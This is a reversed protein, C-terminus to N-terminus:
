QEEMEADELKMNRSAARLWKGDEEVLIEIDASEGAVLENPLYLCYGDDTIEDSITFAEYTAAAGGAKVTVYVRGANKITENDIVGHIKRYNIDAEATDLSVTTKTEINEAKPVETIVPGTMIPPEKAFDGVNREVKEIVVTDPKQEKMYREIQFPLEKTFSANKFEGAMFPLLTNGFSDRFMLLSKKKKPNETQIFADEVSKTPTIYQFEQKKQYEYNWEPEGGLPYIMKNLDGLETKTRVAKTTEYTDHEYGLSDMIRNYALAAGKNNWHSDRKLYLVEKEREFIEFLDCYAIKAKELEPMLADINSTDDIKKYYYPMGEEYLSNKNPAVTLLFRGGQSTVYQQILSLNNAANKIGKESLTNKGLYDDMTSAYYLWGDKGTVVTDMNSVQFVKSQIMSDLAVLQQRFAFHDEFYSGLGPFYNTNFGDEDMIPPLEALKKNETTVETKAVTMGAFPLICVLFCVVLFAISEKKHNM